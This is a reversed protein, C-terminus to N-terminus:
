STIDPSSRRGPRLPMHRTWTPTRLRSPSGGAKPMADRANVALNLIANELQNPDAGTRWLGGALVTEIAVHEGLARQLLESMGAVLRNLDVVEPQLPSQRAFALLRHTLIAARKAGEMASGAYRELRPIARM